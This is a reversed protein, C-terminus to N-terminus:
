MAKDATNSSGPCGPAWVYMHAQHGFDPQTYVIDTWRLSRWVKRELYDESINLVNKDLAITFTSAECVFFSFWKLSVKQGFSKNVRKPFLMGVNNCITIPTVPM